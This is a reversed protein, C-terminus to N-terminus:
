RNERVVMWITSLVEDRSATKLLYADAGARMAREIRADSTCSAIAIIRAAPHEEIIATIAHLGDVVPMQLDILAIDPLLERYRAIAEVGDGAQGVVKMRWDSEVAAALGDRMVPHDDVILVRLSGNGYVVTSGEFAFFRAGAQIVILCEM